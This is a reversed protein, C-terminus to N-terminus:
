DRRIKGYLQKRRGLCSKGGKQFDRCMQPREEYISCKNEQYFVCWGDEGVEIGGIKKGANQKRFFCCVGCEFCNLGM